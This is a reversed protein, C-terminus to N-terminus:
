DWNAGSTASQVRRAKGRTLAKLAGLSLTRGSTSVTPSGDSQGRAVALASITAGSQLGADSDFRYHIGGYVRSIAAEQALANLNTKEDPFLYGLVGAAAGSFSSHGSTYSPFNPLGFPTTIAPDAQSPRILWYTYKDNWCCIGADMQAMNLLAFARAVRPESLTRTQMIGDAIANWHGPPTYTGANDAWFEAITLQDPTRTDSIQRVEALGANYADSGFAPPAAPQVADASSLLWPQVRGWGPLLPKTGNWYGPGTPQAPGSTASAAGDSQARALVKQAVARGIAEGQTLDSRYNLGAVLRSEEDEKAKAELDASSDPYFAELVAASAAAVAAHDSPYCPDGSSPVLAAISADTQAPTARNFRYKLQYVAVLADYQAVSLYAYFRSSPPPPTSHSIVLDRAIENWRLSSGADWYTVAASQAATRGKQLAAVEAREARESRSGAVAAVPVSVGIDSVLVPKWSGATPESRGSSAIPTVGPSGSGNGGGGCGVLLASGLLASVGMLLKTQM